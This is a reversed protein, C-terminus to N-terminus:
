SLLRQQANEIRRMTAERGLIGALQFPDPSKERGSLAYRMPWLVSGRGVETAYDWVSAKITEPTFLADDIGGILTLIKQLKESAVVPDREDKWLLQEVPFTPDEFFYAIEGAEAMETIQGFHTIHEVLLPTIRLLKEHSYGPLTTISAPLAREIHACQEEVSLRKIHEKNVWDLKELNFFGPSKQVRELTFAQVLEEKTFIEQETGPNWGVLALFNLIAEPLYGRDRYYTLPQAGRRKSLKARKEDVVLPLHAYNPIPYGLAEHLLIQRPTNAIHDEGRVIHTVGMTADDVVVALHFLPEHINKAIVFDGLDTTDIEIPGRIIDNFMVRKNPNKFRVIERIVGSGDKAEEKSIYANGEAILYELAKTHNAVLESQRHFEDYELGLWALSELINEEYEKKSRERDTDEIRVIFKGGQKRAFLYSFVATRYNGGHLLGTPSPAFRTVINTM